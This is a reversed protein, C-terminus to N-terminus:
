RRGERRQKLYDDLALSPAPAPRPPRAPPAPPTVARVEVRGITVQITPQAPESPASLPHPSGPQRAAKTGGLLQHSFQEHRKQPLDPKIVADPVPVQEPPMLRAPEEPVDMAPPLKTGPIEPALHSAAAIPISQKALNDAAPPRQRNVEAAHLPTPQTTQRPSSPTPASVPMDEAETSATQGAMTGAAHKNDHPLHEFTNLSQFRTKQMLPRAPPRRDGPPPSFVGHSDATEAFVPQENDLFRGMDQTPRSEFLSPPYPRVVAETQEHGFSRSILHTFFNSM